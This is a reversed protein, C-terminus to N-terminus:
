EINSIIAGAGMSCKLQNGSWVSCLYMKQYLGGVGAM